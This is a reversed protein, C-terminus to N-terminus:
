QDGTVKGALMVDKVGAASMGAYLRQVTGADMANSRVQYIVGIATTISVIKFEAFPSLEEVRRQANTEHRFAGAILLRRTTAAAVTEAIPAAAAAVVKSTAMHLPAPKLAGLAMAPRWDGSTGSAGAYPRMYPVRNPPRGPSQAVAGFWPQGRLYAQERRDDGNLPAPGAYRVRVHSLGKVESGLARAAARSLDIVRDHTIGENRAAFTTVLRHRLVPHAIITIDETTM